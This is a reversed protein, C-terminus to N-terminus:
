SATRPFQQGTKTLGPGALGPVRSDAARSSPETSLFHPPRRPSDRVRHFAGQAKIAAHPPRMANPVLLEQPCLLITIRPAGM